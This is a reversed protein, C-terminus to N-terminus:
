DLRVRCAAAGGCDALRLTGGEPFVAIAAEDATRTLALPGAVPRPRNDAPPMAPDFTATLSRGETLELRARRIGEELRPIALTCTEGPLVTVVDGGGGCTAPSFAATATDLPEALLAAVRAGVSSAVAEVENADIGGTRTVGSGLAWAAGVAVLGFLIALTVIRKRM